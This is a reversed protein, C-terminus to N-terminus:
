LSYSNFDTDADLYIQPDSSRIQNPPAVPIISAEDSISHDPLWACFRM